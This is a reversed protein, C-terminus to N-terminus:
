SLDVIGWCSSVRSYCVSPFQDSLVVLSGSKLVEHFLVDLTTGLALFRFRVKLPLFCGKLTKIHRCSFPWELVHGHIEDCVQGPRLTIVAYKCDYVLSAGFRGFKDGAVFRDITRADGLFVKSV